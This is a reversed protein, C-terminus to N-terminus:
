IQIFDRTRWVKKWKKVKEILEEMSEAIPVLHDTYVLEYPCGSRFKRSFAELVITFLLPSLVSGQQVGVKVM